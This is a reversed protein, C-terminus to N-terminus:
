KICVFFLARDFFPLIKLVRDKWNSGDSWQMRGYVRARSFIRRCRLVDLYNWMTPYFDGDQWYVHNRRRAVGRLTFQNPVQFVLTGSPKLIRHFERLTKIPDETCAVSNFPSFIYDFTNDAFDTKAMDMVRFDGPHKKAGEIMEPVIDIGTIQHKALHPVTRGRGVGAILLSGPTPFFHDTINHEDSRWYTADYHKANAAFYRTNHEQVNVQTSM